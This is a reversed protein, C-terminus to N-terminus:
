ARIIRWFHGPHGLQPDLGDAPFAGLASRADELTRVRINQYESLEMHKDYISVAAPDLDVVLVPARAPDVAWRLAPASDGQESSRCIRPIVAYFTSGVGLQSRVSVSGGLLNALKRSLPLGLGTGKIRKQLDSDVQGFDEFIRSLDEAAVGIGTDKVSFM